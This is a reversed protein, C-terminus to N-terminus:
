TLVKVRAKGKPGSVRFTSASQPKPYGEEIQMPFQWDLDRALYTMFDENSDDSFDDYSDNNSDTSSDSDSFPIGGMLTLEEDSSTVDFSTDD